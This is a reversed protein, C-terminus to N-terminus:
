QNILYYTVLPTSCSNYWQQQERILIFAIRTFGWHKKLCPTCADNNYKSLVRFWRAWIYSSNCHIWEHLICFLDSMGLCPEMNDVSPFTYYYVLVALWQQCWLWCWGINRTPLLWRMCYLWGMFVQCSNEAIAEHMLMLFLCQLKKPIKRHFWGLCGAIASIEAMLFNLFFTFM